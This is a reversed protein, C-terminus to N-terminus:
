ELWTVNQTGFYAVTPESHPRWCHVRQPGIRVWKLVFLSWYASLMTCYMSARTLLRYSLLVQQFISCFGFGVVVFFLPFYTSIPKLEKFYIATPNALFIVAPLIKCSYKKISVNLLWYFVIVKHYILVAKAETLIILINLDTKTM